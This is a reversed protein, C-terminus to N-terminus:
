DALAPLAAGALLQQALDLAAPASAVVFMPCGWVKSMMVMFAKLALRRAASPEVQVMGRVYARLAPKNRKLWLTM